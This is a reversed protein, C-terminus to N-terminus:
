RIFCLIEKRIPPANFKDFDGRLIAVIVTMSEAGKTYFAQSMVLKVSFLTNLKLGNLKGGSCDM